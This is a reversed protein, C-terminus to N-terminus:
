YKKLTYPNVRRDGYEDCNNSFPINTKIDFVYKKETNFNVQIKMDEINKVYDSM